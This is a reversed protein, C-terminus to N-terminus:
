SPELGRQAHEVAAEDSAAVGSSAEAWAPAVPRRLTNRLIVVGSIALGAIVSLMLVAALVRRSHDLIWWRDDMWWIDFRPQGESYLLGYPQGFNGWQQGFIKVHHWIPNWSWDHYVTNRFTAGLSQNARRYFINFNVAVGLLGPFLLGLGGLVVLANRWRRMNVLPACMVALCPLVILMYRPGWAWDGSWFRVRGFLLTNGAVVAVLLALERPFKRVSVVLGAISLLVFPAYLFISKGPSLWQGWIGELIPGGAPLANIRSTSQNYGFTRWTGYRWENILALLLLMVIVGLSFLAARRLARGWGGKNFTALFWVGFIPLFILATSRFWVAAGAAVGCALVAKTSGTRVAEIGFMVALIVCMATGPEAGLTKAYAFAYSGFGFVLGILAAGRLSAGLQLSVIMVIILTIATVLSNTFLTSTQVIMDRTDGQCNARFADANGLLGRCCAIAGAGKCQGVPDDAFVGAVVRGSEFFPAAVIPVGIGYKSVYKGDSAKRYSKQLLPQSFDVCGYPGRAYLYDASQNAGKCVDVNPRGSTLSHTTQYLNIDDISRFQGTATTLFVALSLLFVGLLLRVRRRTLLVRLTNGATPSDSQPAPDTAETETNGPMAVRAARRRAM